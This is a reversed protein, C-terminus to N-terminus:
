GQGEDLWRNAQDVDRFVRLTGALDDRQLEYMRSMGFGLDSEVVIARRATPSFLSPRELLNQVGGMTIDRGVAGRLDVLLGFDPELKPETRLREHIELLDEDRLDGRVTVVIVRRESDIEYSTSM